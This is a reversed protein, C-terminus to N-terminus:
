RTRKNHTYGPCDKTTGPSCHKKPRFDKTEPVRRDCAPCQIGSKKGDAIVAATPRIGEPTAGRCPKLEYGILKTVNVYHM